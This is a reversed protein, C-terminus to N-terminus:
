YLQRILSHYESPYNELLFELHPPEVFDSEMFAPAMTTGLLAFQGGRILQSGQWVGGKVLIQPKHGRLIDNGLLHVHGNRKNDLLLLEVPDGLYFHYIEDAALKHIKSHTESTLLYYIASSLHKSGALIHSSLYTRRYFGGEIDLPELGLLDIIKKATLNM